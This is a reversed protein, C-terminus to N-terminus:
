KAYHRRAFLLIEKKRPASNCGMTYVYSPISIITLLLTNYVEHNSLSWIKTKRVVFVFHYSHPTISTKALAVSTIMNCYMFTNYCCM